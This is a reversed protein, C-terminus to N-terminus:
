RERRRAITSAAGAIGFLVVSTPEPVGVITSLSASTGYRTQWTVLDEASVMGDSNPSEARQWALFDSGDVSGDLNYDGELLSSSLQTIANRGYFVENWPNPANDAPKGNNAVFGLSNVFGQKAGAIFPHDAGIDGLNFPASTNIDERVRYTMKWDSNADERMFGLVEYDANNVGTNLWNIVAAFHVYQSPDFTGSDFFPNADNDFEGVGVIEAFGPELADQSFGPNGYAGSSALPQDVIRSTSPDAQSGGSTPNPRTWLNTAAYRPHVDNADDGSGAGISIEIRGKFPNQVGLRISSYLVIAGDRPDLGSTEPDDGLNLDPNNLKPFTDNAVANFPESMTVANGHESNISYRNTHQGGTFGAPISNWEESWEVSESYASGFISYSFDDTDSFGQAYVSCHSPMMLVTLLLGLNRLFRIDSRENALMEKSVFSYFM